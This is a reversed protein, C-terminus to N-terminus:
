SMIASFLIKTFYDYSIREQELRINNNKLYNYFLNEKTNLHELYTINTPTGNIIKTPFADLTEKDMMLDICNPYYKKFENLIQLGHVDIDGWYFIKKQKLWELHQLEAVAFGKGWIAVTNSLVPLQQFAIFNTQNEVILVNKCNPIELNEAENIVIGINTLQPHLYTQPDLFRIRLMSEEYEIYYRKEFKREARNKIDIPILFDLLSILLSTNKEIFKTDIGADIQRLYINPRPNKLFYLCVNIISQWTISQNSEIIRWNITTWDKLQLITTTILNITELLRDFDSQKNIFFLFDAPTDFYINKIIDQNKQKKEATEIRYGLQTESKKHKIIQQILITREESKTTEYKIGRISIPVFVENQLYNDVFRPYKKLAQQQITEFAIM